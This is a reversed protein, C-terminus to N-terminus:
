KLPLDDFFHEGLQYQAEAHGQAAAKRWWLLALDDRRAVWQGTAYMRGLMTQAEANGQVAAKECWQAAQAYDQPMSTIVISPAITTLGLWILYLCAHVPFCPPDPLSAAAREGVRVAGHPPLAGALRSRRGKKCEGLSRKAWYQCLKLDRFLSQLLALCRHAYM